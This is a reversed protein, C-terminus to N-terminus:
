KARWVPKRKELFARSGEWADGSKLMLEYQSYSAQYAGQLSSYDRGQFLMQKTARLSLPACELLSEMLRNSEAQFDQQTVVKNILGLRLAAKAGFLQGTLAVELAAKMPVQRALRHLGGSAALGIKPEPLGFRATEVALALDCALVVELGGGVADGNILAIVPKHLDFRQTLGAFGTAPFHDLGHQSREKLDTGVCFARDGVGTITALHLQDNAAFADFVESLEFHAATNLANLFKPRAITVQLVEGTEQVRIHGYSSM